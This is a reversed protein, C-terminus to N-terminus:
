HSLSSKTRKRKKILDLLKIMKTFLIMLGGGFKGM